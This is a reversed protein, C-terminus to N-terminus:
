KIQVQLLVSEDRSDALGLEEVNEGMIVLDDVDITRKVLGKSCIYDYFIIDDDWQSDKDIDYLWRIKYCNFTGAPVTINERGVIKKTLLWPHGTKRYVWEENLQLPYPLVLLPPNEYIISDAFNVKPLVAALFDGLEKPDAFAHGKFLVQAKRGSKPIMKGPDNYGYMYLGDSSNAYYTDGTFEADDLVMTEHFVFTNTAEHLLKEGTIKMTIHSTSTDQPITATDGSSRFNFMFFLREYEWQNGVTIPYIFQEPEPEPEIPNFDRECNASLIIMLTSLVGILKKM